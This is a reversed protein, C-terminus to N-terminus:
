HILKNENLLHFAISFVGAFGCLIGQSIIDWGSSGQYLWFLIWLPGVLIAMIGGLLPSLLMGLILILFPINLYLAWHWTYGPSDYIATEIVLIMIASFMLAISIWHLWIYEYRRKGKKM